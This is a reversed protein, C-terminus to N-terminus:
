SRRRGQPARAATRKRASGAGAGRAAGGRDRGAGMARGSGEAEIRALLDSLLVRGLARHAAAEAEAFVSALAPKVGRSVACGACVPHEHVAFLADGDIARRVEEITIEGAPRALRFGGDRGPRTEVIGARALRALLRRLVVPNTNVSAALAESTRSEDLHALAALAHLAVALRVNVAMVTVIITVPQRATL